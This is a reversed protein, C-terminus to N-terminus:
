APDGQLQRRGLHRRSRVDRSQDRRRCIARGGGTLNVVRGSEGAYVTTYSLNLKAQDRQAVAQALNAEASARQAKLVNLQASAAAVAALAVKVAAQQQNQQSAYQEASQVPGAGTKAEAEYRTAQQKRSLM